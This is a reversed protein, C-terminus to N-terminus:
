NKTRRERGCGAYIYRVDSSKSPNCFDVDGDAIGCKDFFDQPDFQLVFRFRSDRPRDLDMVGCMIHMRYGMAFRPDCYEQLQASMNSCKEFFESHSIPESFQMSSSPFPDIHARALRHHPLPVKYVRDLEVIQLGNRRHVYNGLHPHAHAATAVILFVFARLAM